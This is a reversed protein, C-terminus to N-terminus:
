WKEAEFSDPGSKDPADRVPSTRGTGSKDPICCNQKWFNTIKASRALEQRRRMILEQRDMDRKPHVRVTLLLGLLPLICGLGGGLTTVGAFSKHSMKRAWTMVRRVRTIILLILTLKILPISGLLALIM